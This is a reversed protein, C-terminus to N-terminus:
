TQQQIYTQAQLLAGEANRAIAAQDGDMVLVWGTNNEPQGEPPKVRVRSYYMVVPQGHNDVLDGVQGHHIAIQYEVDNHTFDPM